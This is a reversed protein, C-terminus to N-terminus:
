GLARDPRPRRAHYQRAGTCGWLPIQDVHHDIAHELAPWAAELQATIASLQTDRWALLSLQMDIASLNFTMRRREPPIHTRYRIACSMPFIFDATPIVNGTM